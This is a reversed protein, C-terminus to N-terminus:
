GFIEKVAGLGVILRDIDERNNYLYLSARATAAIGFHSMVLQACHHGARIAVGYSDLITSIDHPHADGLTFSIIASREDIGGPGLVTVGEVEQIRDLAYELLVREHAAIAEMGVQTLFDVAAGMGVAGAINPTGAEFKHPVEAWTSADRRVVAIMEGGGKYPRMEELLERRAWLCGIGTPGCMKHGSFAYCDVGLTSLDLPVHVAGQAGDVVVLAGVEKSARTIEEVPNITGLANSCHGFAVV